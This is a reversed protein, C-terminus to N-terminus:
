PKWRECSFLLNEQFQLLVRMDDAPVGIMQGFEKANAPICEVGDEALASRIAQVAYRRSEPRRVMRVAWDTLAAKTRRCMAEKSPSGSYFKVPRELKPPAGACSLLCLNVAVILLTRLIM